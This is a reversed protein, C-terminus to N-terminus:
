PRADGELEIIVPHDSLTLPGTSTNSLTQTPSVGLLYEGKSLIRHTSYLFYRSKGQNPTSRFHSSNTQLNNMPLCKSQIAAFIRLIRLAALRLWFSNVAFFVFIASFFRWLNKDRHEKREKHNFDQQFQVIRRKQVAFCPM